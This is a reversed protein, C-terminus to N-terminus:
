EMPCVYMKEQEDEVRSRADDCVEAWLRQVEVHVANARSNIEELTPEANAPESIWVPEYAPGCSVDTFLGKACLASRQLNYEWVNERLARALETPATVDAEPGAGPRDSTLQEVTSLMAGARGIHIHLESANMAEAQAPAGAGKEATQGCAALALALALVIVRFKM